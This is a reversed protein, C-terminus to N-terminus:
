TAKQKRDHTAQCEECSAFDSCKDGNNPPYCEDNFTHWYSTDIVALDGGSYKIWLLALKNCLKCRGKAVRTTDKWGYGQNGGTELLDRLWRNFGMQRFYDEWSLVGVVDTMDFNYKGCAPCYIECTNRSM